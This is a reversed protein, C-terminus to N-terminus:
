SHLIQEFLDLPNLWFRNIKYVSIANLSINTYLSFKVKKGPPFSPAPHFGSLWESEEGELNPSIVGAWIHGYIRGQSYM